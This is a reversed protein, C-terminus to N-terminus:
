VNRYMEREYVNTLRKVQQKGLGKDTLTVM